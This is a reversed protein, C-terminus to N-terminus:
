VPVAQEYVEFIDGAPKVAQLDIAVLSPNAGKTHQTDM